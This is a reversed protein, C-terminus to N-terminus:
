LADMSTIFSKEHTSGDMGHEGIPKTLLRYLVVQLTQPSRLVVQLWLLGHM